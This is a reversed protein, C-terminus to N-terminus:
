LTAGFIKKFERKIDNKIDKNDLETIIDNM